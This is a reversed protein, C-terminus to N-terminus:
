RLCPAISRQIDDYNPNNKANPHYVIGDFRYGICDSESQVKVYEINRLTFKKAYVDIANSGYVKESVWRKWNDNTDVVVAFRYQKSM